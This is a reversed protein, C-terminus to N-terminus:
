PDWSQVKEWGGKWMIKLFTAMVMGVVLATFGTRLAQTYLMSITFLNRDVLEVIVQFLSYFRSLM